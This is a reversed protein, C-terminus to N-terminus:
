PLSTQVDCELAAIEATSIEDFLGPGELGGHEVACSEQFRDGMAAQVVALLPTDLIGRRGEREAEEAAVSKLTAKRISPL